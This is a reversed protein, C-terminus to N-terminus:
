NYKVVCKMNTTMWLYRNLRIKINSFDGNPINWSKIAFFYFHLVCKCLSCFVLPELFLTFLRIEVPLLAVFICTSIQYICKKPTGRPIKIKLQWWSYLVPYFKLEDTRWIEEFGFIAIIKAMIKKLVIIEKNMITLIFYTYIVM